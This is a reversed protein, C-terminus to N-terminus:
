IMFRFRNLFSSVRVSKVRHNRNYSCEGNLRWSMRMLSQGPKLEDARVFEGTRLIFLHNETARIVTGDDLELEYIENVSRTVRASHALAPVQRGNGDNAWVWFKSSEEPYLEALEEMTRYTGDLLKVKTDGSLCGDVDADTMIIVKHYRVKSVDFEKGFGAQLSAIITGVENNDLISKLQAKETNLIKGKLPLIAQNVRSRAQKASGGASDGEVLFIECEEPKNSQCDALKGPLEYASITAQKRVADRARQAAERARSARIVRQGIIAALQDDDLKDQLFEYTLTEAVTRAETTNLKTKTQGEFQPQPVRVSLVAM